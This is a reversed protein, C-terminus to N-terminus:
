KGKITSEDTRRYLHMLNSFHEGEGTSDNEAKRSIQQIKQKRASVPDDSRVPPDEAESSQDKEMEKLGAEKDKGEQFVDSGEKPTGEDVKLSDARM